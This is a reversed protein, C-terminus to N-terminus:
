LPSKLTTVEGFISIFSGPGILYAVNYPLVMGTLCKALDKPVSLCVSVCVWMRVFMM